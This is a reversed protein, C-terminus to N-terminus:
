YGTLEVFGLGAVKKNRNRGSVKISGEYYNVSLKMEQEKIRTEVTIDTSYKPIQIRWKQPYTKGSKLKEFNKFDFKIENSKIMESNGNEFVFTGKAFDTNSNEDRLRFYMLETSDNFAISFWDWGKQNKTLASTSWERDMWSYGKVSYEKKNIEIKGETNIRTFSYYYSATGSNSKLSLGRDGHLVMKKEPKLSLDFKISDTEAKIKFIPLLYNSDPFDAFIGWNEISIELPNINTTVLGKIGRAFKEFCYHKEENIDSLGLHAFYLQNTSFNSNINLNENNLANRFITFQYSFERNDSSKLNGTFYWWELKFDEHPGYDEPFHFDIVKDAKKYSDLENGSMADSVSISFESEQNNNNDWFFYVSVIIIILLLFLYLIKKRKM